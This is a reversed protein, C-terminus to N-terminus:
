GSSGSLSQDQLGQDSGVSDGSEKSRYESKRREIRDRMWRLLQNTNNVLAHHVDVDTKPYQPPHKGIWDLYSFAASLLELAEDDELDVIYEEPLVVARCQECDRDIYKHASCYGSM